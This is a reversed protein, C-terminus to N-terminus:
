VHIFMVLLECIMAKMVVILTTCLYMRPKRKMNRPARRPPWVIVKLLYLPPHTDVRPRDHNWRPTIFKDGLTISCHSNFLLLIISCFLCSPKKGRFVCVMCDSLDNRTLRHRQSRQIKACVCGDRGRCRQLQCVVCCVFHMCILALFVSVSETDGNPMEWSKTARFSTFHCAILLHILAQATVIDWMEQCTGRTGASSIM